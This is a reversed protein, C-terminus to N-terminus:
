NARPPVPAELDETGALPNQEPPQGDEDVAEGEFGGFTDAGVIGQRARVDDVYEACEDVLGEDGEMRGLTAVPQELRDAEISEVPETFGALDRGDARLM